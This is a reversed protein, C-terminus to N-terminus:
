ENGNEEIFENLFDRFRIAQKKFQEIKTPEYLRFWEPSNEVTKCDWAYGAAGYYNAEDIPCNYIYKTDDKMLAYFSGSRARDYHEYRAGAKVNPLDKQLIYIKGDIPVVRSV